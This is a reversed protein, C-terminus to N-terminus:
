FLYKEDSFDSYEVEDLNWTSAHQEYKIREASPIKMYDGLVAQLHLYSETSENLNKIADLMSDKKALVEKFSEVKNREVASNVSKVFERLDNQILPSIADDKPVFGIRVGYRRISFQNYEFVKERTVKLSEPESGRVM